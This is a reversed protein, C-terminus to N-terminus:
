PPLISIWTNEMMQFLRSGWEWMFIMESGPGVHEQSCQKQYHMLSSLGSHLQSVNTVHKWFGLPARERWPPNQEVLFHGRRGGLHATPLTLIERHPCLLWSGSVKPAKQEQKFDQYWDATITEWMKVALHIECLAYNCVCKDQWHMQDQVEWDMGNGPNIPWFSNHRSYTVDQGFSKLQGAWWPFNGLFSGLHFAIVSCSLAGQWTCYNILLM